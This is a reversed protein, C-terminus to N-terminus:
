HCTRRPKSSGPETCFIQKSFNAPLISYQILVGISHPATVHIELKSGSPMRVGSVSPFQVSDSGFKPVTKSVPRCFGNCSVSVKVGRATTVTLSSLQLGNTLTGAKLFSDASLRRPPTKFYDFLVHIPGPNSVAGVQLTYATGKQVPAVLQGSGLSSVSCRATALNPELSQKSYQFLAIVNQFLAQTRISVLGKANPYFDYWVTNGYSTGNCSADEAGGSPCSTLGCPSFINSQVTATALVESDELTATSNLPKGPSNLNLSCLYNDNVPNTGSCFNTSGSAGGAFCLSLTGIMAGTAIWRGIKRQLVSDGIRLSDVLMM